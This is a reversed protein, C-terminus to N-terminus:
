PRHEETSPTRELVLTVLSEPLGDKAVPSLSLSLHEGPREFDRLEVGHEASRSDV